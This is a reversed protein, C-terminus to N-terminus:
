GWFLATPDRDIEDLLEDVTRAFPLDIYEHWREDSGPWYLRWVGRSKLYRLRASPSTTWESGPHPGYPAHREVITVDRGSVECEIRVRNQAAAPVRDACWRRIRALDPEPPSPIAM